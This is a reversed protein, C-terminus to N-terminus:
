YVEVLSCLAVVWFVATEYEGGHSGSIECVNKTDIYFYHASVFTMVASARYRENSSLNASAFAFPFCM